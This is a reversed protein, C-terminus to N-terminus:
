DIFIYNKYFEKLTIEHKCKNKLQKETRITNNIRDILYAKEFKYYVIIESTILGDGSSILEWDGDKYYIKNGNEYRKIARSLM